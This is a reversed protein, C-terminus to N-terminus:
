FTCASAPQASLKFIRDDTGLKAMFLDSLRGRRDRLMIDNGGARLFIQKPEYPFIM